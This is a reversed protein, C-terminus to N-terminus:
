AKYCTKNVFDLSDFTQCQGQAYKTNHTWKQESAGFLHEEVHSPTGAHKERGQM